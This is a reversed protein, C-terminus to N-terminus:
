KKKHKEIMALYTGLAGGLLHSLIPWVSELKMMANVGIATSVLWAVGIGVGSVIAPWMKNHAVAKVNITRLYLFAIQAILVCLSLGWIPLELKDM